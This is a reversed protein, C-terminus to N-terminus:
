KIASYNHEIKTTEADSWLEELNYIERYEKKFVHVIIDGYDLLIWKANTYGTKNIPKESVAIHTAKQVSDAIAQVLRESEAHCIVFYDCISNHIKTMDMSIIQESKKEKIGEIISDLLRNEKDM